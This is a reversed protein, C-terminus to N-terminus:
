GDSVSLQFLRVFSYFVPMSRLKRNKVVQETQYALKHFNISWRSKCMRTVCHLCNMESRDPCSGFNIGGISICLSTSVFGNFKVMALIEPLVSDSM